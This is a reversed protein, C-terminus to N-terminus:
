RAFHKLINNRILNIYRYVESKSIKLRKAIEDARDGNLFYSHYVIFEKHELKRILDKLDIEFSPDIAPAPSDITRDSLVPERASRRVIRRRIRDAIRFILPWDIDIGQSKEILCELMIWSCLDEVNSDGVRSLYFIIRNIIVHEDISDIQSRLDFTSELNKILTEGIRRISFVSEFSVM